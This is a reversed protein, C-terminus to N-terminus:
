NRNLIGNIKEKIKDIFMFVNEDKLILLMGIYVAGGIAVQVVISIIGVNIFHKILMCVAFMILSSLLYNRAGKFIDKINLENRVMYLQVILVVLESAVTAISAGISNWLKILIINLVFNVVVGALISLTYEKQKKTPLLYQTGIVNTTGM